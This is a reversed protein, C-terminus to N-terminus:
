LALPPQLSLCFKDVADVQVAGSSTQEPLLLCINRLRYPKMSIRDGKLKLTAELALKM